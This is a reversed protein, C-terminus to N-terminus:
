ENVLSGEPDLAQAERELPELTLVCPSVQRMESDSPENAKFGIVLGEISDTWKDENQVVGLKGLGAM